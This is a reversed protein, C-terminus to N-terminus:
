PTEVAPAVTYRRIAAPDNDLMAVYGFIAIDIGGNPINVAEVHLPPNSHEFFSAARKDAVLVTGPTLSDVAAFTIGGVTATSGDIQATGSYLWPAQDQPTELLDDFVDGAMAVVSTSAGITRFYSAAARLAALASTVTGADTAVTQLWTAFWAEVLRGYNQTQIRVYQDFMTRDGLDLFIRDFDHGAAARRAKAEAPELTVNGPSPIEAKRGAYEEVGYAPRVTRFGQVKPATLPKPGFADILPRVINESRWLEGLWQPRQMADRIPQNGITDTPGVVDTLAATVLASVGGTLYASHMRVLADDYSEPKPAGVLAGGFDAPGPLVIPAPTYAPQGSAAIETIRATSFAPVAVFSVERLLGATVTFVGDDGMSGEIVQVGVSLGDRLKAVASALVEDGLDGPAVYFSATLKSGAASITKGYGVIKSVDHEVLAKVASADDDFTISGAAFRVRGMATNGVVGYEVIEGTVMRTGSDAATIRAPLTLATVTPASARIIAGPALQTTM